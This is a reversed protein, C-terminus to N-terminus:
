CKLCDIVARLAPSVNRHPYYLYLAALSQGYDGFLRILEGSALEKAVLAEPLYAIGLGMKVAAKAPYDDNFIWQGQPKISVTEGQMDFSWQYVDGNSLRYGLCLHQELDQLVKPMGHQALYDPSAVVAMKMEESIKVATMEEAVDNGLRVGADFGDAIIDIFRSESAMEVCISPYQQKFGVLKPLLM